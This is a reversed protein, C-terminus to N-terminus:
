IFLVLTFVRPSSHMCLVALWPQAILIHKNMTERQYSM